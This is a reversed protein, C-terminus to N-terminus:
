FRARVPPLRGFRHPVGPIMSVLNVLARWIAVLGISAVSAWLSFAGIPFRPHVDRQWFRRSNREPSAEYALHAQPVDVFANIAFSILPALSTAM